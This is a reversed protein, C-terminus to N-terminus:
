IAVARAPPKAPEENKRHQQAQTHHIPPCPPTSSWESRSGRRLVAVVKAPGSARKSTAGVKDVVVDLVM